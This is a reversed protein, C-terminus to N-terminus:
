LKTAKNMCTTGVVPTIEVVVISWYLVTTVRNVVQKLPSTMTTFALLAYQYVPSMVGDNRERQLIHHHITVNV